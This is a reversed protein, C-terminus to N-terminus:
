ETPYGAAKWAPIGLRFYYVKKYGWSVAKATAKSSRMCGAGNCYLVFPQDKKAEKGLTADSFVKKLEIHVADPIRGAAWDKDKRVDVFLVGKDFLEKAKTADVTTAGNITEPSAKGAYAMPAAVFMAISVLLLSFHKM